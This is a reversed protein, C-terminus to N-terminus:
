CYDRTTGDNGALIMYKDKRTFSTCVFGLAKGIEKQVYNAVEIRSKGGGKCANEEPIKELIKVSCIPYPNLFHFMPDFLKNGSATTGHFMSVQMDIAVPVIDDTLEAFLPSFRLLYPERCTTGEPCVVMDGKSLMEKMSERDKERDRTLSITKIPAIIKNIKSISYTVATLPKMLAYQLYLPDLLTRHNCVYLIGKPKKGENIINTSTISSNQQTKSSSSSVTVRIGTLAMIIPYIYSPLFLGAIIRILLIFFGFPIWMFMALSPFPTPRFALRGDHFILPKPYKERPLVQWNKKEAKNVM